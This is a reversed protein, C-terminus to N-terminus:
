KKIIITNIIIENNNESCIFEIKQGNYITEYKKKGDDTSYFSISKSFIENIKAEFLLSGYEEDLKLRDFGRIKAHSTLIIRKNKM